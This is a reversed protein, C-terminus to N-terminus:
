EIVVQELMEMFKEKNGGLAMELEIDHIAKKVTEARENEKKRIIALEKQNQINSNCVYWVEDFMPKRAYEMDMDYKRLINEVPERMSERLVEIEEMCAKRRADYDARAAKNAAVRKESLTEEMFERIIKTIKM